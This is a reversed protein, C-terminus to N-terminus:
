EEMDAIMSTVLKLDEETDIGKSEINTQLCQITFGNSLWTLQELKEMSEYLHIPLRELALLAQSTYAYMGIHRFYPGQTLWSEMPLDRVFPIAQRSFYMAQGATNIVVKVVNSNGLDTVDEIRHVLTAIKLGTQEIIHLAMQDIMLPDILPEDGQVNVVHTVMPFQSLVEACRFTGSPQDYRTMVVDYGLKKVHNYILIDDTAVCFHDIMKAQQVRECVRQILSKGRIMLLPKGPLRQSGYRAPIIAMTSYANM